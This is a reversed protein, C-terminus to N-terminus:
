ILEISEGKIWAMFKEGCEAPTNVAEFMTVSANQSEIFAVFKQYVDTNKEKAKKWYKASLDDIEDQSMSAMKNQADRLRDGRESSGRTVMQPEDYGGNRVCNIIWGVYNKIVTTESAIDAAKIANIVLSSDGDAEDYIKELNDETLNNHGKYALIVDPLAQVYDDLNMQQYADNRNKVISEKKDANELAKQDRFDNKHIILDVAVVRGGRGSKILNYDFTYDSIEDLEKKAKDLVRRKFSGWDQMRKQPCVEAMDDWSGGSYQCAKVKDDNIDLVGVMFKLESVGYKHIVAPCSETVKYADMKILEYFRFTYKSKMSLANALSYSTFHSKLDIIHESMKSNFTMTFHGDEYDANTILSLIHFEGEKGKLEIVHGTMEKSVKKLDRYIHGNDEERNLMEKLENPFITATINSNKDVQIRTIAIAVLKEELLSSNYKGLIFENSKRVVLDGFKSANDYEETKGKKKTKDM